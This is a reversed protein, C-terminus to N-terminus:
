VHARGIEVLLAAKWRGAKFAITYALPYAVALCLATSVGAYLFSRWFQPLYDGIVSYNSFAFTMRYGTELTGTYLSTVLLTITPIAFFIGLWLGGPLLLLYPTIRSKGVQRATDSAAAPASPAPARTLTAM